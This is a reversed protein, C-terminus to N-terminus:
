CDTFPTTHAIRHIGFILLGLFQDLISIFILSLKAINHRHGLDKQISFNLIIPLQGLLPYKLVVYYKTVVMPKLTINVPKYHSKPVFSWSCLNLINSIMTIVPNHYSSTAM